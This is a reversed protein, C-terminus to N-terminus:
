TSKENSTNIFRCYNTSHWHTPSLDNKHSHIYVQKFSSSEYPSFFLFCLFFYFIFLHSKDQVIALLLLVYKCEEKFVNTLAWTAPTVLYKAFFFRKKQGYSYLVMFLKFFRHWELGNILKSSHWSIDTNANGDIHGLTISM